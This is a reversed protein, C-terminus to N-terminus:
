EAPFKANLADSLPQCCADINGAGFTIVIDTNRGVIEDVLRERTSYNCPSTVLSGIMESSVGEIPLERAPYIPLLVVEDANSLATAFESYFDRTRTYLHPQFIATIHRGPFAGKISRLAASIEAPHHAYDDLYVCNPRNIYLDFRRRVGSFSALGKKIKEEDFNM